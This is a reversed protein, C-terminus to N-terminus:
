RGPLLGFLRPRAQLVEENDRVGGYATINGRGDETTAGMM